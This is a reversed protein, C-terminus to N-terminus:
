ANILDTGSANVILAGALNVAAPPDNITTFVIERAYIGYAGGSTNTISLASASVWSGVTLSGITTQSTSDKSFIVGITGSYDDNVTIDGGNLVLRGDQDFIIASTEGETFSPDFTSWSTGAQVTASHNPTVLVAQPQTSTLTLTFNGTDNENWGAQTAAPLFIGCATLLGASLKVMLPKKIKM